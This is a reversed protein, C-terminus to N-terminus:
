KLKMRRSYPFRSTYVFTLMEREKATSFGGKHIGTTDAFIVTGKKGTIGEFHLPMSEDFIRTIRPAYPTKQPFYDDYTGGNQSQPVYMFPGADKSVDTLYAFIKLLKKDDPDRHWLQSETPETSLKTKNGVITSLTTNMGFYADAIPKFILAFEKIRPDSVDLDILYPKRNDGLEKLNFQPVSYATSIHLGDCNLDEVVGKEYASLHHTSKLYPFNYVKWLPKRLYYFPRLIYLKIIEKLNHM